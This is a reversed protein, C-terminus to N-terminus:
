VNVDAAEIRKNVFIALIWQTMWFDNSFVKFDEGGVVLRIEAQNTASNKRWLSEQM